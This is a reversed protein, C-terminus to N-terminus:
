AVVGTGSTGPPCAIPTAPPPPPATITTQGIAIKGANEIETGVVSCIAPWSDGLFTPALGQIGSTIGSGVFVFGGSAVNVLGVGLFCLPHTSTLSATDLGAKVGKAIGDCLDPLDAGGPPFELLMGALLAASLTAEVITIGVGVGAGPTPGSGTDLTTFTAGIMGTGAGTGIANAMVAMDVGIWGVGSWHGQMATVMAPPLIPM